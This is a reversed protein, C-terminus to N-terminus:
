AADDKRLSLRGAKDRTVRVGHGSVKRADEPVLAKLVQESEKATRAAGETQIWMEAQTRWILVGTMDYDKRNDNAPPPVPYGAVPPTKDWVHSMFQEARNLLEQAYIKDLEIHEIQPERAGMIISLISQPAGTVIMQWHMQPMYREVVVEIPERGQTHKADIPCNLTEVWGDLTCAAWDFIPHVAVEGRRIVKLRNRAEYWDLNLTETASGLQVAWVRSLDEEESQGTMELWLQHMKEVDSRMLCGIKSATLRGQRQRKQEASLAM